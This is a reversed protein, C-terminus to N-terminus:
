FNKPALNSIMKFCFYNRLAGTKLNVLLRQNLKFSDLFNLIKLQTKTLICEFICFIEVLFKKKM